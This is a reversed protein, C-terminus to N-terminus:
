RIDEVLHSVIVGQFDLEAQLPKKKGSAGLKPVTKRCIPCRPKGRGPGKTTAQEWEVYCDSCLLDNCPTFRGTETGVDNRIMKIDCGCKGYWQSGDLKVFDTNDDGDESGDARVEQQIKLGRNRPQVGTTLPYRESSFTKQRQNGSTCVFRCTETRAHGQVTQYLLPEAPSLQVEQVVEELEPLRLCDTTRRLCISKLLLQLRAISGAQAERIPNVIHKRFAAKSELQGIRLFNVLSGLDYLTNHIPTGTLCWRLRASLNSAEDLAVRFWNADYLVSEESQFESVPTSYTTLVVDCLLLDEVRKTKAKGHHKLVRIHDASLHHQIDSLWEELVLISPAIVLTGKVNLTPNQEAFQRSELLSGVISAPMTLTKGLGMEDALIRGIAEPDPRSRKDGTVAHTFCNTGNVREQQWISPLTSPKRGERQAIFDVGFSQHNKLGKTVIDSVGAAGLEGQHDLNNLLAEVELEGNHEAASSITNPTSPLDTFSVMYPNDYKSVGHRMYSPHQLFQRAKSLVRGAERQEHQPGYLVFFVAFEINKKDAQHGTAAALLEKRRTFLDYQCGPLKEFDVLARATAQDLVAIDTGNVIQLLACHKQSVAQMFIM